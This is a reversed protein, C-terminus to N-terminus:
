FFLINNQILKPMIRFRPQLLTTQRQAVHVVRLGRQRAVLKNLLLTRRIM